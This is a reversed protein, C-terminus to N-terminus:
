GKRKPKCEGGHFCGEHSCRYCGPTPQRSNTDCSNSCKTGPDGVIRWGCIPCDPYCRCSSGKRVCLEDHNRGLNECKVCDHYMPRCSGDHADDDKCLQCDSEGPFGDWNDVGDNELRRLRRSASLLQKYRKRTVTVIEDGTDNAEM